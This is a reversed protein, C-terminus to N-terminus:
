CSLFHNASGRVNCKLNNTSTIQNRLLYVMETKLIHFKIVPTISFNKHSTWSDGIFKNIRVYELKEDRISWMQCKPIQCKRYRKLDKCKPSYIASTWEKKATQEPRMNWVLLYKKPDYNRPGSSFLAYNWVARRSDRRVNIRVFIPCKTTMRCLLIFVVCFRSFLVAFGRYPTYLDLCVNASQCFWLMYM